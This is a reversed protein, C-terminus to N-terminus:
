SGDGCGTMEPVANATFHSNLRELEQPLLVLAEFVWFFVNFRQGLPFQAAVAVAFPGGM